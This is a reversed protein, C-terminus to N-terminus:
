KKEVVKITDTANDSSWPYGATIVFRNFTSAKEHRLVAELMDDFSRPEEPELDAAIGWVLALKRATGIHPTLAHIPQRPRTGSAHPRHARARSCWWRRM